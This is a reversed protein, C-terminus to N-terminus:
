SPQNGDLTGIISSADLHLVSLNYVDAGFGVPAANGIIRSSNEITVTPTLIGPAAVYIGGGAASAGNAEAPTSGGLTSSSLTLTGVYDYIGGGYVAFNGTLITSTITATGSYLDIGGGEFAASNGALTSGSLSLTGRGEIFIAGGDGAANGLLYSNIVTVTSARGSSYIGGGLNNSKNSSLTSTNITLMGSNYIGGGNFGTATNQSLSSGTLSLKGYNLIGGGSNAFNGSVICGSLTATGSAQNDIGSGSNKSVSCNNLNLTGSNLIGGGGSSAQGNSLTMGNLTDTVGSAVEFVRSQPTGSITLQDAGPGTITLNKKILLEGSTLNITQGNLSPAFGITDGSHAAAIAARLSGTGSDLNNQVTLTSPVWRDNLSELSPRFRPPATRPKRPCSPRSTRSLRDALWSTFSM